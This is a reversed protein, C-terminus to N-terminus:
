GRFQSELFSCSYIFTYVVRVGSLTVTLFVGSFLVLLLTVNIASTTVGTKFSVVESEWEVVGVPSNDLSGGM